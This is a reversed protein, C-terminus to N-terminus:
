NFESNILKKRLINYNPCHQYVVNYFEKSHDFVKCHALEHVVVSDIIEKSFHVLQSSFALTNTTRSNSGFRSKTNRVKVRYIDTNIGMELGYRKVSETVYDLLLKKLKKEFLKKIDRDSYEIASNDININNFPYREGFVYIYENSIANPKISKKILNKAFKDLGKFIIVNSAIRPASIYFCGDKFRYTINKIRKRTVIVSYTKEDVLYELKEKSM